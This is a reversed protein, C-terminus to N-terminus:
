SKKGKGRGKTPGDLDEDEIEGDSTAAKTSEDAAATDIMPVDKIVAPTDTVLEAIKRSVLRDAYEREFGAIEGANYPSSHIRFRVRVLM